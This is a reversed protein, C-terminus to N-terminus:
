FFDRYARLTLVREATMRMNCDTGAIHRMSGSGWEAYAMDCHADRFTIWARQAQLLVEARRAFEPFYTMDEADMARAWNMTEPWEENLIDDWVQAEAATCTSMGFTTHGGDTGDMCRQSLTGICARGERTDEAGFYCSRLDASFKQALEDVQQAAAPGSILLLLAFLRIM